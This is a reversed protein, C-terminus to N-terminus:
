PASADAVVEEGAEAYQHNLQVSARAIRRRMSIIGSVGPTVVIRRGRVTGHPPDSEQWLRVGERGIVPQVLSWRSSDSHYDARSQKNKLL